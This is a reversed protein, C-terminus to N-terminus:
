LQALFADLNRAADCIHLIEIAEERFRFLILHRPFGKVQWARVDAHKPHNEDVISGSVPFDALFAYSQELAQVFREAAALNRQAIYDALEWREKKAQPTEKITRTM